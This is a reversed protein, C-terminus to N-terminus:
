VYWERVQKKNKVKSMHALAAAGTSNASKVALALSRNYSSSRRESGGGSPDICYGENADLKYSGEERSRRRKFVFYLFVLLLIIVGTAISIILGINMGMTSVSAVRDDAIYSTSNTQSGGGGGGGGGGGENRGVPRKKIGGSEQQGPVPISKAFPTLSVTWHRMATKKETVTTAEVWRPRVGGTDDGDM